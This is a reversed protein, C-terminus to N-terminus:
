VEEASELGVLVSNYYRNQGTIEAGAFPPINLTETECDLEVEAIRLGELKHHFVDIEWKHGDFPVIYRTKCLKRVGPLGLMSRADEVPIEYEWENRTAGVSRSKITVFAKDDAIRIRVTADPNESLYGQVIEHKAIAESEFDIGDRVLFKRETEIAM